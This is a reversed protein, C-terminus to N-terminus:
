LPTIRYDHRVKVKKDVSFLQLGASRDDKVPRLKMMSAVDQSDAWVLGNNEDVASTSKGRADDLGYLSVATVNPNEGQLLVSWGGGQQAQSQAHKAGVMKVNRNLLSGFYADVAEHEELCISRLTFVEGRREVATQVGQEDRRRLLRASEKQRLETNGMGKGLREGKKGGGM